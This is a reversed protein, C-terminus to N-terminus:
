RWQAAVEDFTGNEIRECFDEGILSEQRRAWEASGSETLCTKRIETCVEIAGSYRSDFRSVLSDRIRMAARPVEGTSVAIALPGSRHVSMTVFSGEGPASAVNVLRHMRRADSAVRSDAASGTAAVVLDADEIDSPGQYERVELSFRPSALNSLEPTSAPSIVRVTAGADHLAM